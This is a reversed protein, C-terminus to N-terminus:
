FGKVKNLKMKLPHHQRDTEVAAIFPTKGEAGRGRKGGSRRGGLYADDVEIRDLLKENDNNELMVQMLKHKTLWAANYSVGLQRCLELASIGNKSQTLLFITLFWKRLPLHTSQFITGAILSTQHQVPQM